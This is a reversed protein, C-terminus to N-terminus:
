TPSNEKSEASQDLYCEIGLDYAVLMVDIVRFLLGNQELAEALGPQTTKMQEKLMRRTVPRASMM